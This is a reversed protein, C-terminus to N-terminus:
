FSVSNVPLYDGLIYTSQGVVYENWSIIGSDALLITEVKTDAVYIMSFPINIDTNIDNVTFTDSLGFSPAFLTFLENFLSSNISDSLTFTGTMTQSDSFGTSADLLYTNSSYILSDTDTSTDTLASVFEYSNNDSLAINDNPPNLELLYSQSDSLIGTLDSLNFQGDYTNLESTTIQEVYNGTFHMINSDVLSGTADSLISTLNFKFEPTGNSGAGIAVINDTLGKVFTYRRDSQVITVKDTNKVAYITFLSTLKIKSSLTNRIDYEGFLALGAPHVLSKVIDRYTELKEDVQIIYSYKQFLRSDQIKSEDSAMGDSNIYNGPYKCVAGLSFEIKVTNPDGDYPNVNNFERVVFGAYDQSFVNQGVTSSYSENFIYGGDTSARIYEHFYGLTGEFGDITVTPSQNPPILNTTIFNSIYGYGFKIFKLEAIGNTGPILRSVKVMTGTGFTTNVIFTQGLKFNTGPSLITLKNVSPIIKGSFTKFSIIDNIEIIGYYNKDIDCEYVNPQINMFVTGVIAPTTNAGTIVLTPATTYGTGPNDIRISTIVGSQVVAHGTLGTGGGSSIFSVTPTTYGTGGSILSITSVGGGTRRLTMREIEVDISRNTIPSTVKVVNGVMVNGDNIIDNSEVFIVSVQSWKGSSLKLTQNEPYRIVVDKNFLLKFLTKYSEETGKSLFLKKIHRLLFREDIHPFQLNRYDVQTKFNRIFSSLTTDIDSITKIDAQHLELWEHYSDIFAAFTKYDDRVFSPLDESAKTKLSIGNTM